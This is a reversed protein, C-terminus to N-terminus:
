WNGSGGPSDGCGNGNRQRGRFVRFPRRQWPELLLSSWCDAVLAQGNGGWKGVAVDGDEVFWLLWAWCWQWMM